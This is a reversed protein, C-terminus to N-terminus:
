EAPRRRRTRLPSSEISEACWLVCRGLVIRPFHRCSTGLGRQIIPRWPERPWHGDSTPSSSEPERKRSSRSAISHIPLRGALSPPLSPPLVRGSSHFFVSCESETPAIARASVRPSRPPRRLSRGVGPPRAPPRSASFQDSALSPLSPLTRGADAPRGATAEPASVGEARIKALRSIIKLCAAKNTM